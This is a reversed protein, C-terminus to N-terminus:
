AFIDGDGEKDFATDHDIVVTIELFLEILTWM